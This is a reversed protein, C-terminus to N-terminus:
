PALQLSPVLLGARDRLSQQVAQILRFVQPPPDKQHRPNGPVTQLPPSVQLLPHWRIPRVRRIVPVSRFDPFYLSDLLLRHLRIPQRSLRSQVLHVMLLLQGTQLPLDLQFALCM